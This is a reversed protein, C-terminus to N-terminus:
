EGAGRSYALAPGAEEDVGLEVETEICVVAFDGRRLMNSFLMLHPIINAGM